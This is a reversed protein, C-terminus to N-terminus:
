ALRLENLETPENGFVSVFVFRMIYCVLGIEESWGMGSTLLAMWHYSLLFLGQVDVV